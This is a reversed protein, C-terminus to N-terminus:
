VSTLLMARESNGTAKKSSWSATSVPAARLVIQSAPSLQSVQQVFRVKVHTTGVVIGVVDESIVCNFMEPAPVGQLKSSAPCGVDM